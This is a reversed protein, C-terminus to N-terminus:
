VISIHVKTSNLQCQTMKDSIRYMIIWDTTISFFIVFFYGSTRQVNRFVAHRYRSKYLFSLLFFDPYLFFCGTNKLLILKSYIPKNVNSVNIEFQPNINERIFLWSQTEITHFCICFITTKQITTSINERVPHWGHFSRFYSSLPFFSQRCYILSEFCIM